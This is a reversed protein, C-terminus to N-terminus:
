RALRDLSNRDYEKENAGGSGSSAIFIGVACAPCSKRAPRRSTVSVKHLFRFVPHDRRRYSAGAAARDLYTVRLVSSVAIDDAVTKRRMTRITATGLFARARVTEHRRM